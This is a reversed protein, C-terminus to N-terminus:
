PTGRTRQAQPLGRVRAWAWDPAGRGVPSEQGAYRDDFTTTTAGETVTMLMKTSYSWWSWPQIARGRPSEPWPSRGVVGGAVGVGVGVGVGEGEGDTVGLGLGLGLSLGLGLGLEGEGEGDESDGLGAVGEAEGEGLSALGEVEKDGRDADGAPGVASVAVGLGVPGEDPM